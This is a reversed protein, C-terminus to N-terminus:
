LFLKMVIADEHQKQYYNKRRGVPSFGVQRYLSIAAANSERVELTLFRLGSQRADALVADMLAKGVGRGRYEPLVALNDLSGEDLVKTLLAYGVAAEGGQALLFRSALSLLVNQPWPDEPFCIQEMQALRLADDPGAQRITVRQAFAKGAETSM